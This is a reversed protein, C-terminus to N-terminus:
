ENIKYTACKESACLLVERVEDFDFGNPCIVLQDCVGNIRYLDTEPLGTVEVCQGYRPLHRDALDVRVVSANDLTRMLFRDGHWVAVVRGM